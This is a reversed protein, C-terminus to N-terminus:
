GITSHCTATIAISTATGPAPCNRSPSLVTGDGRRSYEYEFEAGELSVGHGHRPQLRRHRPLARRGARHARRATGGRAVTERDPGQAEDPWAAADFLDLGGGAAAAASSTCAPFSSFVDRALFEADHRLDLQALKRVVSYTGRLAQVAGLSGSNPTGLM